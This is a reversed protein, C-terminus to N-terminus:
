AHKLMRSRRLCDRTNPFKKQFSYGRGVPILPPALGRRQVAATSHAGDRDLRDFARRRPLDALARKAEESIENDM